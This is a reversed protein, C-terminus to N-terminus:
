FRSFYEMGDDNQAQHKLLLQFSQESFTSNQSFGHNDTKKYAVGVPLFTKSLLLFDINLNSQHANLETHTIREECM